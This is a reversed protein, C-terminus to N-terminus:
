FARRRFRILIGAGAFVLVALPSPEPVPIFTLTFPESAAYGTSGVDVLRGTAQWQTQLPDFGGDSSDIQWFPHEDFDPNGLPFYEGPDDFTGAFGQTWGRFAGDFSVVEFRINAGPALTHFNEAPEDTALNFFGPDDVGWGSLLGGSIEPLEILESFNFEVALQGADTRGVVLDADTHDHGGGAFAPTSAILLSFATIAYKRPNM